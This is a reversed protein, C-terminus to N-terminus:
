PATEPKHSSYLLQRVLVPLGTTASCDSGSKTGAFKNIIVGLSEISIGACSFKNCFYLSRTSLSGCGSRNIFIQVSASKKFVTSTPCCKMVFCVTSNKCNASGTVHRSYVKGRSSFEVLGFPQIRPFVLDNISLIGQFKAFSTLFQWPIIASWRRVTRLRINNNLSRHASNFFPSRSYQQLNAQVLLRPRIGHFTITRRFTWSRNDLLFVGLSRRSPSGNLPETMGNPSITSYWEFKALSGDLSWWNPLFTKGPINRPYAIYATSDPCSVNQDCVNLLQFNKSAESIWARLSLAFSTVVGFSPSFKVNGIAAPVTLDDPPSWAKQFDAEIRSWGSLPSTHLSSRRPSDSPDWGISAIVSSVSAWFSKKTSRLSNYQDYDRQVRSNREAHRFFFCKWNWQFTNVHDPSSSRRQAHQLFASCVIIPVNITISVQRFRPSIERQEGHQIFFRWVSIHPGPPPQCFHLCCCPRITQPWFNPESHWFCTLSSCLLLPSDFFGFSSLAPFNLPM